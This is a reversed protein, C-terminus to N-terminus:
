KTGRGGRAMPDPLSCSCAGTGGSSGCSIRNPRSTACKSGAARRRKHVVPVGDFLAAGEPTQVVRLEADRFWAKGGRNRLLLHVTLQRVPKEPLVVVQRRQWDHTGVDFAASQGWLPTGDQYLLDLYLSYDGASGTVGEARSWAAAVIPAPTQQDLVVTQSAGRGARVDDGNDCVLWDGQREFGESWGRWGDARLWNDGASEPTVVRKVVTSEAAARGSFLGLLMLVLVAFRSRFM